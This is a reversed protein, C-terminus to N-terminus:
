FTELFCVSRQFILSCIGKGAWTLWKLGTTKHLVLIDQLITTLLLCSTEFLIHMEQLFLYTILVLSVHQFEWIPACYFFFYRQGMM